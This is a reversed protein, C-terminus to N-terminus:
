YTVLCDPKCVELTDNALTISSDNLEIMKWRADAGVFYVDKDIIRFAGNEKVVTDTKSVSITFNILTGDNLVRWSEYFPGGSYTGQWSGVLWKMMAIRNDAKSKQAIATLGLAFTCVGLLLKRKM